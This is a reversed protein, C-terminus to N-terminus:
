PSPAHTNSRLIPRPQILQRLLKRHPSTRRLPISRSSRGTLEQLATVPPAHRRPAGVAPTPSVPHRCRGAGTRQRALPVPWAAAWWHVSARRGPEAGPRGSSWESGASSGRRLLSGPRPTGKGRPAASKVLPPPGYATRRDPQRQGARGILGLLAAALTGKDLGSRGGWRGPARWRARSNITFQYHLFDECKRSLREARATVVPKRAM